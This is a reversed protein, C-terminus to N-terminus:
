LPAERNMQEKAERRACKRCIEKRRHHCRDCTNEGCSVLLSVLEEPTQIPFAGDLGEISNIQEMLPQSIVMLGNMRIYDDAISGVVLPHIRTETIIEAVKKGAGLMEFVRVGDEAEYSMPGEGVYKGNRKMLMRVHRVQEETYLPQNPKIRKAPVLLGAREKRRIEFVSLGVKQCLEERTMFGDPIEGRERATEKRAM